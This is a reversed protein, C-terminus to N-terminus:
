ITIKYLFKSLGPGWFLCSRSLCACLFAHVFLSAISHSVHLLLSNSLLYTPYHFNLPPLLSLSSLCIIQSAGQIDFILSLHMGESFLSKNTGKKSWWELLFMVTNTIPEQSSYSYPTTLLFPPFVATWYGSCSAPYQTHSKVPFCPHPLCCIPVKYM